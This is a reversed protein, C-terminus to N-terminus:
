GRTYKDIWSLVEEHWRKSHAPKLVWHNEEPFYLFRSPVGRRQLATFTAIGQADVVRYDRGGHVVLTPTKWNRVLSMPSQRSYSEGNEWPVGGHEWEPFWLEETEYYAFTEDLNGDHCVLAKFRDTKGNIWNIMYGGYSAGLAAMRDKDLFPYKALAADLGKMLDDFPAGGWDGRIADTFAQGYGTSGHFDVMLAAYGHGAFVEPNWRYHFHDSFSGQPGGHILFAVPVRADKPVNPPRVLWAHVTDGKAGEFSMQETPGWAISAVRADNLHTIPHARGGNADASWVEAPHQLDDHVFVLRDGAVGVDSVTGRDVIRSVKGSGADIAFLAHHGLDDATAFLSRDDKSWVIQSPSRDWGETITTAKKTRWDIAVVRLRDSEFGPRAMALYALKSGDHSFVPQTDAAANASTLLRPKASGDSPVVWLDDNTSWADQRGAMKSTFVVESGDHAIAVQELGGFPKTPADYPLGKMLDVLEGRRGEHFVFLHSRAGEDWSDWHRVPLQDYARVSQKSKSAAQDRKASEELTAADPYVDIALLLRKGDPFPLVASVDVPLATVQTAEGGDVAIRWVQSSGSRSSLFYVSKGDPAFRAGSDAEPHSTLRRVSSGDTAAVWVDKSSKNADLDPTSVTFTVLKGDPSVAADSVREFALMDDVTFAHRPGSPSVTPAAGAAAEVSAANPVAPPPANDACGTAVAVALVAPVLLPSVTRM